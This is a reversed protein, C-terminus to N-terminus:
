CKIPIIKTNSVFKDWLELKNLNYLPTKKDFVLALHDQIIKWQENSPASSNIESFWQLWYAFQETTM